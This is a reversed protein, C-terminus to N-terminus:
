EKPSQIQLIAEVLANVKVPKSIYGDMGQSIYKEKDGKLAHATMAIIFPRQNKPWREHIQQTTEVGDMGPMQIDMLVLDYNQQELARIAEVGNNAIDIQYGLKDLIGTAVKQNIINDEALLIKLPHKDALHPFINETKEQKMKKMPKNFLVGYLAEFLTSPKIPKSLFAAFKADEKRTRDRGMSTLLVLPFEGESGLKQIEQGLMFGDMLPMQMDLIGIDFPDGNKIIRLADSGSSVATPIMGWSATQKVLIKRNTEIDDVILIRLGEFQDGVPLITQQDRESQIDVIISFSFTSGAGPESRVWMEGGMMEVLQKSITLGLGTGGYKRTTSNDVQSFSKFLRDMRDPPIGIGTDRVSFMIECQPEEINKAKVTIVVEGTDTFKVSNGVLNVLVQRIRTFDGVVFPPTNDEMIYALDISKEDAKPVLIDLSSEICDRLSFPHVELDMRGAEIKSFDLINNIVTLLTDSGNRITEIYDQQESTLNTSLLLSTMGVVANLPTRIEHSMNALFDAKARAAKEAEEKALLIQIQAEKQASIDNYISLIGVQENKIVVPVGYIEVDVLDGNKKKRKGEGRIKGGDTVTDTYQSAIAKSIDPVVLDDINKGIVESKQYGFLYLFAPNCTVINHKQDLFSIALPSNILLAKFFERERDIEETRAEVTKELNSANQDLKIERVGIMYALIGLVFPASEIIWLLPENNHVLIPNALFIRLGFERALLVIGIIPFFLGLGFGTITYIYLKKTYSKPTTKNKYM